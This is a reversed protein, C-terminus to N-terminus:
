PGSFNISLIKKKIYEIYVENTIVTDKAKTGWFMTKIIIKSREKLMTKYLKTTILSFFSTITIVLALCCYLKASHIVFTQIHKCIMNLTHTSSYIYINLCTNTESMSSNGLKSEVFSFFWKIEINLIKWVKKM